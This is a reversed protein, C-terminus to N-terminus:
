PTFNGPIGTMLATPSRGGSGAPKPLMPKMAAMGAANLQKSLKSHAEASMSVRPAESGPKNSSTMIDIVSINGNDKTSEPRTVIQPTMQLSNPSASGSLLQNIMMMSVQPGGLSSYGGQPLFMLNSNNHDDVTEVDIKSDDLEGPNEVGSRMLLVQRRRVLRLYM